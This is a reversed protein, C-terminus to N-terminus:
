LTASPRFRVTLHLNHLGFNDLLLHVTHDRRLGAPYRVEIPVEITVAGVGQCRRCEYPGVVGEGRCTRCTAHTPVLIRVRGGATAEEPSLPVDVHLREL